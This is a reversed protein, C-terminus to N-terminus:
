WLGFLNFLVVNPSGGTGQSYYSLARSGAAFSSGGDTLSDMGPVDNFDVFHGGGTGLGSMIATATVYMDITASDNNPGRTVTITLTVKGLKTSADPHWTPNKISTSSFVGDGSWTYSDPTAPNTTVDLNAPTETGAQLHTTKDTTVSIIAIPLDPSPACSAVNGPPSECGSSLSTVSYEYTDAADLGTDTYEFPPAGTGPIQDALMSFDADGPAKRYLRYNVATNDSPKSWSLDIGLPETTSPVATLGEPPSPMFPTATAPGAWASTLATFDRARVQYDYSKNELAGSAPDTYSSKDATVQALDAWAGGLAEKRQIDYWGVDGSMSRSWSVKIKGVGVTLSAEAAVGTPPDPPGPVDVVPVIVNSVPGPTGLDEGDAPRVSFRPSGSVALSFQYFVPATKSPPPNPRNVTIGSGIPVSGNSGDTYLVYGSVCSGFNLAIPTIDGLTIVGNGDGDVMQVWVPNSAGSVNVGFLQAIPTLDSLGVLSNNDYDGCNHETWGLTINLGNQSVIHLDDVENKSGKPAQAAARAGAFAGGRFWVTALLGDGSAPKASGSAPQVMGVPVDGAVDTLALTVLEGPDGLFDGIEVRDPSYHRADYRVHVYAARLDAADHAYVRVVAGSGEDQVEIGPTFTGIGPEAWATFAQRASRDPLTNVGENLTSCAAAVVVLGLVVVWLLKTTKM